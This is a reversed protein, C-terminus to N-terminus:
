DKLDFKLENPGGSKIDATLGSKEAAAYKEPIRSKTKAYMDKGGEVSTITVKHNGVPAGDGARLTTVETIQGDVIKASAPRGEAVLFMLAGEPLPKGKYTVTGTVPALTPGGGGCGTLCLFFLFALPLLPRQM